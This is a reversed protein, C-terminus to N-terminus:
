PTPTDPILLPLRDFTIGELECISLVYYTITTNAYKAWVTDSNIALIQTVRFSVSTTSLIVTSGLSNPDLLFDNARHLYEIVGNKCCNSDLPGLKFKSFRTSIDAEKQSSCTSDLQFSFGHIKCLNLYTIDGTYPVEPDTPLDDIYVPVVDQTLYPIKKIINPIPTTPNDNTITPLVPYYMLTDPAICPSTSISNQYFWDLACLIGEKCSCYDKKPKPPLCCNNNYYM